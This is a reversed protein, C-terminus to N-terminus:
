KVASPLSLTFTTGKRLESEFEIEGKLKDLTEKVIYLGLGSGSSDDSARFFMDFIKSQFERAIGRGNDEIKITCKDELKAATVKVFRDGESNNYKIANAMLNNLVVKLRTEDSTVELDEEIEIIINVEAQEALTYFSEKLKSVLSFLNVPKMNVALRTNRSYDTVETIFGEMDHIRTTMMDFYRPYNAPDENLKIVEILGLLTSLPARMDHSASYVFRDLEDNAKQLEENKKVVEAESQKRANIDILSGVALAPEDNEIIFICSDFFWRYSGDKNRLRLENQYYGHEAMGKKVRQQTREIDEPHVLSIFKNYDLRLDEDSGYGMLKKWQNSTFVSDAVIDWEYIGAKTGELAREFRTKSRELNRTMEELQQNSALLSAESVNNRWIMFLIAVAGSVTSVVLNMIYRFKVAEPSGLLDEQNPVHTFHALAAAIIYLAIFILGLALNRNYFFVLSIMSASVFYFYVGRGQNGVYAIVFLIIVTIMMLISAALLYYGARNVFVVALSILLGLFYWIVFSYLGSIPDVVLYSLCIFASLLALQGLLLSQKRDSDSAFDQNGLLFSNIRSAMESHWFLAFQLLERIIKGGM